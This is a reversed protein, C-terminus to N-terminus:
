IKIIMRIKELINSHLKQIYEQDFNRDPEITDPYQLPIKISKYKKQLFPNFRKTHTADNSFGINKILNIHPLISISHHALCTYAWAADWTDIPREYQSNLTTYVKLSQEGFYELDRSRSYEPWGRMEIDNNIWARRWTAWGWIPVLRSYIISYQTKKPFSNTGAIHFISPNDWYKQINEQCFWFFSQDPLCDDELIIGAEENDFFWTIGESVARKCGLNEERFLTKVECDWDISDLVSKRVIQVIEDENHRDARPGDAAIYLRPPRAKRITEFVQKTTDPRNFILFLVPTKLNECVSFPENDDKGPVTKEGM